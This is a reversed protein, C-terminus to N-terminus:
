AYIGCIRFIHIFLFRSSFRCKIPSYLLIKTRSFNIIKNYLQYCLLNDDPACFSTNVLNHYQSPACGEFTNWPTKGEFKRSTRPNPTFQLLCWKIVIVSVVTRVTPGTVVTSVESRASTSTLQELSRAMTSTAWQSVSSTLFSPLLTNSTITSIVQTLCTWSLCSSLHQGTSPLSVHGPVPTETLCTLYVHSASIMDQLHLRM